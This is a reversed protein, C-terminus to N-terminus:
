NCVPSNVIATFIADTEELNAFLFDPEGAALQEMSTVGNAVAITVAGFAKGARIDTIADGVTVLQVEDPNFGYVWPAQNLAKQLIQERERVQDGFAMLPFYALLGARELLPVAIDRLTGSTIGLAINAQRLKELLGLTGPYVCANMEQPLIALMNEVLLTTLELQKSDYFANSIGAATAYKRVVELYPYGSTMVRPLDTIGFLKNLSNVISQRHYKSANLLTHDMDFFVLRTKLEAFQNKSDQNLRNTM